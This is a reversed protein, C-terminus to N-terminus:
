RGLILGPPFAPPGAITTTAVVCDGGDNACSAIDNAIDCVGNRFRSEVPCVLIIINFSYIVKKISTSFYKGCTPPENSLDFNAHAPNKCFCDNSDQCNDKFMCSLCCDGGDYGCIKSNTSADCFKDGTLGADCVNPDSPDLCLCLGSSATCYGFNSNENCCDGNDYGCEAINNVDDCYQDGLWQVNCISTTSTTPAETPAEPDYNPDICDCNDGCYDFNASPLCCDGNDYGCVENNNAGDCFQDGLWAYNCFVQTTSTGPAESVTTADPDHSPDICDCNDGCYDFNASALCCDGNDYGCDENNNM